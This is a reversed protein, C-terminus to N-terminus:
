PDRCKILPEYIGPLNDKLQVLSAKEILSYYDEGKEKLKRILKKNRPLSNKPLHLVEEALNALDEEISKQKGCVGFIIMFNHLNAITYRNEKLTLINGYILPLKKRAQEILM